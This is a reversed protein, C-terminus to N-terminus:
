TCAAFKNNAAVTPPQHVAEFFFVTYESSTKLAKPLQCNTARVKGLYLKWFVSPGATHCRHHRTLWMAVFTSRWVILQTSESYSDLSPAYLQATAQKTLSSTHRVRRLAHLTNSGLVRETLSLLSNSSKGASCILLTVLSHEKIELAWM